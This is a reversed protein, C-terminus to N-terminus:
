YCYYHYAACMVICANLYFRESVFICFSDGDIVVYVVSVDVIHDAVDIRNATNWDYNELLYAHNM